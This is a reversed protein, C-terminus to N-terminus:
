NTHSGSGSHQGHTTGGGHGPCTKLKYGTLPAVVNEFWMTYYLITTANSGQPPPEFDEVLVQDGLGTWASLFGSGVVLVFLVPGLGLGAFLIDLTHCQCSHRTVM